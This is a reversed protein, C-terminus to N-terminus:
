YLCLLLNTSISFDNMSWFYHARDSLDLVITAAKAALWGCTEAFAISNIQAIELYM